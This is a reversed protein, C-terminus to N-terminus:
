QPLSGRRFADIFSGPTVNIIEVGHRCAYDEIRWYAKFAISFADVVDYLPRGRYESRVRRTENEDEKYFHPQVSVVCNEDDVSLTRMWSHDAGAVYIRTFGMGIATMIAPILVNRPRPMALRSGYLMDTLWRWGEAGVANYKVVTLNGTAKGQLKGVGKGYDSESKGAEKGGLHELPLNGAGFPVFLTMPWEVGRLNELLRAVNVDDTRRFFHPDALIYYEPRIEAFQPSNAFFNVAMCKMGRLNDGYRAITDALSPGNGLVVIKGEGKPLTAKRSQLVVKGLAKLSKVARDAPSDLRYRSEKAM